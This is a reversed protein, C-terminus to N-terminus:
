RSDTHSPEHDCLQGASTLSAEHVVEMSPWSISRPLRGTERWTLAPALLLSFPITNSPGM